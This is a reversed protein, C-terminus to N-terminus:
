PAPEQERKAVLARLEAELEAPFELGDAEADARLKSLQRLRENEDRGLRPPPDPPPSARASAPADRRPFLAAGWATCLACRQGAAGGPCEHQGHPRKAAASAWAICLACGHGAAGGPCEREGHPRKAAAAPAPPAGSAVPPATAGNAASPPPPAKRRGDATDLPAPSTRAVHQMIAALDAGRFIRLARAGLVRVVDTADVGADDGPASSARGGDGAGASPRNADVAASPRVKSVSPPSGRGDANDVPPLSPSPIVSPAPPAEKGGAGGMGGCVGSNDEVRDTICGSSQIRDEKPDASANGVPNEDALANVAEAFRALTSQEWPLIWLVLRPHKGGGEFWCRGGKAIMNLRRLQELLERIWRAGHVEGNKGRRMSLGCLKAYYAQTKGFVRRAGSQAPVKDADLFLANYLLLARPSLLGKGTVPHRAALAHNLGRPMKRHEVTFGRAVSKRRRLYHAALLRETEAKKEDEHQEDHKTRRRAFKRRPLPTAREPGSRNGPGKAPEM